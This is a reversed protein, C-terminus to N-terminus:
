LVLEEVRVFNSLNKTLKRYVTDAHRALFKERARRCDQLIVHAAMQQETSRKPKKPLKALLDSGGRWYKSGVSADRKFNGSIPLEAKTWAAVSKEPLGARVLIESTNDRIFKKTRAIGSGEM